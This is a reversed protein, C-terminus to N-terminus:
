HRWVNSSYKGKVLPSRGGSFASYGANEKVEGCYKCYITGKEAIFKHIGKQCLKKMEEKDKKEYDYLVLGCKPCMTMGLKVQSYEHHCTNDLSPTLKIKKGRM